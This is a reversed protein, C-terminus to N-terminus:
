VLCYRYLLHKQHLHLLDQNNQFRLISSLSFDSRTTCTAAAEVILNLEEPKHREVSASDLMVNVIVVPLMFM